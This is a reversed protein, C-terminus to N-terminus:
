LAWTTTEGNILDALRALSEAPLTLCALRHAFPHNAQPYTAFLQLTPGTIPHRTLTAELRYGPADHILTM